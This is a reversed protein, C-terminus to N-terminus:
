GDHWHGVLQEYLDEWEPNQAEIREIKWARPWHELWGALPRCIAPDLGAM